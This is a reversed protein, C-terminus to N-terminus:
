PADTRRLAGAIKRPLASEMLEEIPMPLAISWNPNEDATTAPMNPREKVCAADDLAATLIRSPARALLDYTGVIVDELAADESLGTTERLRENIEATGKENPKMKLECQRELDTGTWQGAITPLDHTTIAALAEKPYEHPPEEEFWFLRYSLIRHKALKERVGDEVTGLDEGVVYAQARQSELAVIALLEDANYRVYTGQQAKMGNPIWFLRFLGMVHDIRLGGGHRLAGRLTHIFPDYGAARLKWPVFPPLGWSQGQTNFADPPAGVGIDKAFVDQWAWADAGDPDVGIPLDQMLELHQAGRALQTDLLWQLWKHFRVRNANETAFQAVASSQPHRYQEPWTHWGSQFKEVLTCFMAFCQLENGHEACFVDFATDDPFQLWLRELAKMKLDFVRDRDILRNRNLERGSKAIEELQPIKETDAGPVSDVRIWLPNFFRRSAPFYPSGQQPKMPAAASLPNVLMMGAGLEKAAWKALRDLDGFDGIGWSGRSRAAYLQVAWGWTKLQEPLYCQAPVVILQSPKDSDEFQIKHYGAPLDPPLRLECDLVGGGELTVSACGRLDLREGTRAFIVSDDHPAAPQKPDGDMARHIAELTERSVDHWCDFADKYRQDIGWGNTRVNNEKSEKGSLTALM